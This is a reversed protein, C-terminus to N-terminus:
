DVPLQRAADDPLVHSPRGHWECLALKNHCSLTHMGNLLPSVRTNGYWHSMIGTSILVQSINRTGMTCIIAGLSVSSSIRILEKVEFSDTLYPERTPAFAHPRIEIVGPESGDNIPQFRSWWGPRRLFIDGQHPPYPSECWRCLWRGLSQAETDLSQLANIWRDNRYENLHCTASMRLRNLWSPLCPGQSKGSDLLRTRCTNKLGFVLWCTCPDGCLHAKPASLVIAEQLASHMGWRM